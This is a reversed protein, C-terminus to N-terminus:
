KNVLYNELGIKLRKIGERLVEIPQCLSIRFYNPYNGFGKGPSIAVRQENLLNLSFNTSDFEQEDVKPFFYFGGDPKSYRLPLNKLEKDVFEVRKLVKRKNEKVYDDCDLAAIGARQVFEPLCTIVLSQIKALKKVIEKNSILYGLRFGTMSYSKSFSSIVAFNSEALTLLSTFEKFSYDAYVEDSVIMLDKEKALDVIMKIEERSLIKGNPNNPSAIFIIKTCPSIALKLLEENIRWNDDLETRIPVNRAGFHNSMNSYALWCPEITIVEDGQKLLLNCLLFLAFRGGFTLLVNEYGIDMRFKKNIKDAIKQRLELLGEPISYHTEGKLTSEYMAEIVRKPPSFDPDGVELHLIKVGEREMKKATAFIDSPKLKVTEEQTQISKQILFTLLEQAFKTDIRLEKSKHNIFSRLEKEKIPVWIPKESKRKLEGIREVLDQRKKVLKLIEFTVKKIEERIKEIEFDVDDM